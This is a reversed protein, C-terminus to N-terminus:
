VVYTVIRKGKAVAESRGKAEKKALNSFVLLYGHDLNLKDLYGTLQELRENDYEEHWLKLEVIERQSKYDIAIKSRDGKMADLHCFGTGSIIPKLFAMFLLLEKGEIQTRDKDKCWMNFHASFKEFVLEMDIRGNKIFSIERSAREFGCDDVELNAHLWTEFIRNAVRLFLGEVVTVFGHSISDKAPSGAYFRVPESSYLIEEIVTRLEVNEKLQMSLSHFLLVARDSKLIQVAALFGERTWAADLDAFRATEL